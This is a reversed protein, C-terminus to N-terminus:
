KEEDSQFEQKAKKFSEKLTGISEQFGQKIQDWAKGSSKKLDNFESRLETRRKELFAIQDNVQKNTESTATAKAKKAKAKIEAIEKDLAVLQENFEKQIKEKQEKTYGSVDEITKDVKQGIKEGTGQNSLAVSGLLSMVILLKM